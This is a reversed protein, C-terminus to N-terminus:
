KKQIKTICCFQSSFEIFPNIKLHTATHQAPQTTSNRLHM